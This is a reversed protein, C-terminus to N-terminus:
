SRNTILLDNKEKEVYIRLGHLLPEMKERTERRWHLDREFQLLKKQLEAYTKCDKKLESIIQSVTEEFVQNYKDVIKELDM